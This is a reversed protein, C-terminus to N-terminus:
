WKPEETLQYVTGCSHCEVMPAGNVIKIDDAALPAGCSQCKVTDMQMSGPLDVKLTYNAQAQKAKATLKVGAFILAFGVLLGVIGVMLWSPNGNPSFAGLIFLFSLIIAIAALIYSIIGGTKM